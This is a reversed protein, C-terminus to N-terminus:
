LSRRQMSEDYSWMRQEVTLAAHEEPYCCPSRGYVILTNRRDPVYDHIVRKHLRCWLDMAGCMSGDTNKGLYIVKRAYDAVTGLGCRWNVPWSM